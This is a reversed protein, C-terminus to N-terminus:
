NVNIKALLCCVHTQELEKVSFRDIRNWKMSDRLDIRGIMAIDKFHNAIGSFFIINPDSKSIYLQKSINTTLDLCKYLIWEDKNIDYVELSSNNNYTGEKGFIIIKYLKKNYISAADTKNQKMDNLRISKNGNFSYLETFKSGNFNESIGGMIAIFRDNDMLCVSAYQRMCMLNNSQKNWEWKKNDILKNNMDLSYLTNGKLTNNIVHMAYLKNHIKSYIVCPSNSVNIVPISPLQFEIPEINPITCLFSSSHFTTLYCDNSITAITSFNTNKIPYSHLQKFCHYPLSENEIFCHSQSIHQQQKSLTNFSKHTAIDTFSFNNRVTIVFLNPELNPISIFYKSIIHIIDIPILNNSINSVYSTILLETYIVGNCNFVNTNSMLSGMSYRNPCDLKYQIGM